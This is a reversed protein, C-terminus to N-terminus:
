WSGNRWTPLTKTRLRGLSVAADGTSLGARRPRALGTGDHELVNLLENTEPDNFWGYRWFVRWAGKCRYKTEQADQQQTGEEEEKKPIADDAILENILKEKSQDTM